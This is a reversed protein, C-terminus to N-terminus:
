EDSDYEHQKELESMMLMRRTDEVRDVLIVGDLHDLEHQFVRAVFGRLTQRVDVARLGDVDAKEDNEEVKRYSIYEVEIENHRPIECVLGPVSLCSEFGDEM